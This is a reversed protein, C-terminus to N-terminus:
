KVSEYTESGDIDNLAVVVPYAVFSLRDEAQASMLQVGADLTPKDAVAQVIVNHTIYFEQELFLGLGNNDTCKGYMVVLFNTDDDPFLTIRLSQLVSLAAQNDLSSIYAKGSTRNATATVGPLSQGFRFDLANTPFGTLTAQCRQSGDLDDVKVGMLEGIKVVVEEDFTTNRNNEAVVSQNRAMYPLDVVPLVSVPITKQVREIRTDFDGLTEHAISNAMAVQNAESSVAGVLVEVMGSWQARPKYALSTSTYELLNAERTAPDAGTSQIHYFGEEIEEFFATSSPSLEIMSGISGFDDVPLTLEVTLTESNDDDASRKPIVGLEVPTGDEDVQRCVNFNTLVITAGSYWV